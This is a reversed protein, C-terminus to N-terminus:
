APVIAASAELAELCAAAAAAATPDREVRAWAWAERALERLEALLVTPPAGAAALEDLRDLRALVALAEDM